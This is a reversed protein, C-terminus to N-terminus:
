GHLNLSPRPRLKQRNLCGSPKVIQPYWGAISQFCQSTIPSSPIAQTYVVLPADTKDPTGTVGPLDLDNVVM